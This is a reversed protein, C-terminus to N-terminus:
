EVAGISPSVIRDGAKIGLRNSTGALVELVYQAPKRSPIIKESFPTTNEAIRVIEGAKSIFIIDLSLPTDKMWFYRDGEGDFIFLMGEDDAMETRYMLGRGREKSSKAVEAQFVHSKGGSLVKITEVALDLRPPTEAGSPSHLAILMAFAAILVFHVYKPFRLSM